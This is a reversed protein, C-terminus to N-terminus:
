HPTVQSDNYRVEIGHQGNEFIDRVTVGPEISVWGNDRRMALVVGNRTVYMEKGDYEVKYDPDTMQTVAKSGDQRTQAWRFM